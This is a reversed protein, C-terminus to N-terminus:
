QVGKDLVLTQQTEDKLAEMLRNSEAFKGLARLHPKMYDPDHARVEGANASVITLVAHVVNENGYVPYVEARVTALNVLQDGVLMLSAVANTVALYGPEGEVRLEGTVGNWLVTGVASVQVSKRGGDPRMVKMKRM